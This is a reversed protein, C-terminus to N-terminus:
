KRARVAAIIGGVIMGIPLGIVIGVLGSMNSGTLLGCIATVAMFGCMGGGLVASGAKSLLQM